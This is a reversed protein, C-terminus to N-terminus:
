FGGDMDLKQEARRAAPFFQWPKSGAGDFVGLYAAKGVCKEERITGTVADVLVYQGYSELLYIGPRCRYLNAAAYGGTDPALTLAAAVEHSKALILKRDYEALMPHSHRLEISISVGDADLFQACHDAGCGGCSSALAIAALCCVGAM